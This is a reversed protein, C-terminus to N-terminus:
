SHTGNSRDSFKALDGPDLKWVAWPVFIVLAGFFLADLVLVSILNLGYLAGLCVGAVLLSVITLIVSDPISTPDSNKVITGGGHVGFARRAAGV